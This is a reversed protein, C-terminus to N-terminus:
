RLNFLDNVGLLKKSTYGEAFGAGIHKGLERARGEVVKMFQPSSIYTQQEDKDYDSSFFQSRYAQISKVKDDWFESVDIIIDPEIYADQIFQLFLRPRWAEQSKGNFFTQIKPLGSLFSADTLLAGARGHDPHRDHIANALIIEPQYQRIKEIIQIQHEEDNRFFGDRMGLNERVDLGLIEAAVAAEEKRLEASGRTGLEGRTLDIIGVKKGEAKYKLITGACALEADDPHAAFVLIDLKM